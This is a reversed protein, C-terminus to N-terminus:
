VTLRALRALKRYCTIAAALAFFGPFRGAQRYAAQFPVRILVAPGSLRV